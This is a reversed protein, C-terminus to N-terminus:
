LKRSQFILLPKNGCHISQDKVVGHAQKKQDSQHM